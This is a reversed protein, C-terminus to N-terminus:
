AEKSKDSVKGRKRGKFMRRDILEEPRKEDFNERLLYKIEERRRRQKQETM